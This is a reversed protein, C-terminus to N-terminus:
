SLVRLINPTNYFVSDPRSSFYCPSTSKDRGLWGPNGGRGRRGVCRGTSAALITSYYYEARNRRANAIRQALLSPIQINGERPTGGARSSGLWNGSEVVTRREAAAKNFCNARDWGGLAMERRRGTRRRWWRCRPALARVAAVENGEDQREEGAEMMSKRAAGRIIIAISSSSFSVTARLLPRRLPTITKLYVRSTSLCGQWHWSMIKQPDWVPHQIDEM